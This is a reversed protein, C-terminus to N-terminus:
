REIVIFIKIFSIKVKIYNECALLLKQAIKQKRRDRRVALNSLVCIVERNPDAPKNSKIQRFKQKESDFYQCDLGVSRISFTLLALIVM